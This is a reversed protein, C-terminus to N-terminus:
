NKRINNSLKSFVNIITSKIGSSNQQGSAANDAALRQRHADLCKQYRLKCAAEITKCLAGSSPECEFCLAEFQTDDIQMIFGCIRVSHSGIGLFSLYRCLHHSHIGNLPRLVPNYRVRCEALCQATEKSEVTITSPSIHVLVDINYRKTQSDNEENQEDSDEYLITEIAKNLVDIGMPKSVVTRGLFKACITKRPEEIPTPFEIATPTAISSPKSSSNDYIFLHKPRRSHSTPLSTPSLSGDSTSKM